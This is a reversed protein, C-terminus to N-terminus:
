ISPASPKTWALRKMHGRQKVIGSRIAVYFALETLDESIFCLPGSTLRAMTLVHVPPEAALMSDIVGLNMGVVSALYQLLVSNRTISPPCVFVTKELAGPLQKLADIEWRLGPTKGVGVVILHARDIQSTVFAQWGQDQLRWRAAGVRTDSRSPDAVAVVPGLHSLGHVIM